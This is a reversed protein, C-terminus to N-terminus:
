EFPRRNFSFKGNQSNNYPVHRELLKPGSLKQIARSLGNAATVLHDLVDAQVNVSALGDHMDRINEWTETLSAVATSPIKSM